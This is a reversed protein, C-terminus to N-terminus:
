VQIRTAAKHKVKSNWNGIEVLGTKIDVQLHTYLKSFNHEFRQSETFAKPAKLIQRCDAISLSIECIPEFDEEVTEVGM